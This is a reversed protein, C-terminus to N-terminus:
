SEYIDNPALQQGTDLSQTERSADPRTSTGQLADPVLALRSQESFAPWKCVRLEPPFATTWSNLIWIHSPGFHYKCLGELDSCILNLNFFFFHCLPFSGEM